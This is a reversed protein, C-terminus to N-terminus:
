DEECESVVVECSSQGCATMAAQEAREKTSGEGVGFKRKSTAYAGCAKFTLVPKCHENGSGKCEDMAASVAARESNHGTSYGYGVDDPHTDIADDVAIAGWGFASGTLAIAFGASALLKGAQRRKDLIM